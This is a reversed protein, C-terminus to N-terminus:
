LSRQVPYSKLIADLDPISKYRGKINILFGGEDSALTIAGGQESMLRTLAEETFDETFLRTEYLRPFAALEEAICMAEM